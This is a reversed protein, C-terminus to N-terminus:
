WNTFPNKILMSNYYKIEGTVEDGIWSPIDIKQNENELEVEAIVLGYNEDIFEDVEWVLNNLKIKTRYKKILPKECLTELIIRAEEVPIQYEFESRSIGRGSGKITIFGKEEVTRIRITRNKDVLLYGQQYFKRKGLSKWEDSKILFKREIEIGL